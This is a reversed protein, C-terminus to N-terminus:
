PLQEFRQATVVTGGINFLIPDRDNQGGAYRVNGNMNVDESAYVNFITNTPVVGGVYVLVVDRDNGAGTYALRNDVASNGAWLALASTTTGYSKQANTGFTSGLTFDVITTTNTLAIGAATMAGLHNRHRVVVKFTGAGTGPFSVASTGDVDVVDGDRQLLAARRAVTVLPNVDNRLELLVWDVINNDPNASNSLVSANITETGSYSFPAATYPQALPLLSLTRLGDNMRNTAPVFPGDLFVKASVRVIQVVTITQTYTASLNGCQDAFRWTRTRVYNCAPGTTIDSLLTIAVTGCNDTATPALALAATLGATNSCQLTVDLAGPLTTLVPATNDIVTITQTHVTSLNLSADRARWTRVRTYTNPCAGPTTVDTQSLVTPTGCNDTAVPVLALAANLGAVDSCQVTANLSGNPTTFVPLINDIVTVTATCTSTTGNVYTATLIVPNPGVNACTFVNTNITRNVIGCNVPTAGTVNATTITVSGSANLNATFNSCVVAPFGTASEKGLIYGNTKNQGALSIYWALNNNTQYSDDIVEFAVCSGSTNTYPITFFPTEVNATLGDAAGIPDVGFTTFTAYSYIGNSAFDANSVVGVSNVWNPNVMTPFASSVSVGPTTVWRVTVVTSSIFGTYAADPKLRFELKGQNEVVGLKVLPTLEQSDCIGNLNADVDVQGCGCLGPAQKLPDTPCLDSSNLVFGAPQSCAQQSVAANGFGDGDIDQYYTVAADITVNATTTFVACGGAAAVTYTVVYTAPASGALTIAGTTSSLILGATSSYTGGSTGTRVVNATGGNSCFPAGGYSITAAPAATITVSTTTSFAACGGGAAVTYTVTYTGATSSGPTITGNSSNLSLGAASSYTGGTTGTLSVSVPASNSCFPTGTYSITATPAANITVPTTATVQACGNAAAVTYTVTYSGATSTGTTIAGTTGNISLGATSSYTGGATGSFLPSVTGSTSCFPTGTYVINATPLATITISATTTIIGCGGGATKTYTVTYTGATSTGLNVEGTTGNISLGATSSFAGGTAGTLTVSANGGNSCYPSGAYAITATGPTITVNATATFLPCGGTAAVTYTVVYAGPTSTNQTIAGTSSNITLGPTSSYVGGTAGTRTVALAAGSTSCAPSGAYAITATGPTITISATTTFVACGGGAPVTYTVTYTGPTSTALNIAGTSPNIIVGGPASFTGGATATQTVTATGSTSCYPSGAYSITGSPATTVAIAVNQNVNGCANSIAINYNGAAFGTVSAQELNANTITGVGTWTYTLPYSGTKIVGLNLAAADSCIAGGTPSTSTISPPICATPYTLEPRVTAGPEASQWKYSELVGAPSSLEVNIHFSLAGDTTFQGILMHNKGAPDAGTRGPLTSWADGVIQFSNGVGSELPAFNILGGLNSTVSPFPSPLPPPINGDPVGANPFGSYVSCLTLNGNTDFAKLQGMQQSNAGCGASGGTKGTLGITIYTDFAEGLDLASTQGPEKNGSSHNWFTTTTTIDLVNAGVVAPSGNVTAMRYNPAMDVYIRYVKTGVAPPTEGLGSLYSVDAATITYYDEVIIGELGQAKTTLAVLSLLGVLLAARFLRLQDSARRTIPWAGTYPHTVANTM